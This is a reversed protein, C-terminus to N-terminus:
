TQRVTHGAEALAEVVLLAAPGASKPNQGTILRDDRVAHPEFAPAASYIGGAAVLDDELLYPMEDTLGVADEEANSFGTVRRGAVLPAGDAARVDLLGASGHCIASVIGGARDIIEVMRVLEMSDRFDWMTGHGGCLFVADYNAPVLEAIAPMTSFANQAEPMAEFLTNEPKNGRPGMSRPDIPPAGGEVSAMDIILGADHFALYPVTLESYWLGTPEGAPTRATSTCLMAIRPRRRQALVRTPPAVLMAALGAAVARRSLVTSYPM